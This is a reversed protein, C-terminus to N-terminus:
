VVSMLNETPSTHLMSLAHGLEHAVLNADQNSSTSYMRDSILVFNNSITWTSHQSIDGGCTWHYYGQGRPQSTAAGNFLHNVSIVPIGPASSGWAQQCAQALAQVQQANAVDVDGNANPGQIVPFSRNALNTQQDAASRFTVPVSTTRLTPPLNPY